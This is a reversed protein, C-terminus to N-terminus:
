RASISVQAQEGATLRKALQDNESLILPTEIRRVCARLIEEFLRRANNADPAQRFRQALDENVTSPRM